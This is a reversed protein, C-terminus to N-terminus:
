VEQRPDNAYDEEDKETTEVTMDKVTGVWGCSCRAEDADAWEMGGTLDWDSVSEDISVDIVMRIDAVITLSNDDDKCKPCRFM